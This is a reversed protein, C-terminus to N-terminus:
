HAASLLQAYQRLNWRWRRRRYENTLIGDDEINFGEAHNDCLILHTGFLLMDACSVCVDVWFHAALAHWLQRGPTSLMQLPILGM